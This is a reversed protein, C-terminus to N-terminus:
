IATLEVIDEDRFNVGRNFHCRQALIKDKPFGKKMISNEYRRPFYLEVMCSKPLTTGKPLFIPICSETTDVIVWRLWRFERDHGLPTWSM